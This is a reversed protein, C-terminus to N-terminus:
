KNVEKILQSFISFGRRYASYFGNELAWLTVSSVTTGGKLSLIYSTIAMAMEDDSLKKTEDLLFEDVDAQTSVGGVKIASPFYQFKDSNDKHILYRVCARMSKAPEIYNSPIGISDAFGKLTRPNVPKFVFHIHEKKLDGSGDEKEDMHHTAYFLMGDSSSLIDLAPVTRPDDPYIVGTFCGYKRNAM